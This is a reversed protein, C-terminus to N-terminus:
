KIAIGSVEFPSVQSSIIEVLKAGKSKAFAEIQKTKNQGPNSIFLPVITRRLELDNYIGELITTIENMKNEEINKTRNLIEDIHIYEKVKKDSFGYQAFGDSDFQIIIGKENYYNLKIFDSISLEDRKWSDYNSAYEKLIYDLDEMTEVLIYKDRYILLFERKTM